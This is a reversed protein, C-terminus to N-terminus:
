VKDWISHIPKWSTFECTQVLICPGNGLLSSIRRQTTRLRPVHFVRHLLYQLTLIMMIRIRISQVVNCAIDILKDSGLELKCRIEM